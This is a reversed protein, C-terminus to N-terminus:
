RRPFGAGQPIRQPVAGRAPRPRQQRRHRAHPNGPIDAFNRMTVAFNVSSGVPVMVNSGGETEVTLNQFIPKHPNAQSRPKEALPLADSAAAENLYSKIGQEVTTKEGVVGKKVHIATTCLAAIADMSHSVFLITRGQRMVDSMKGLCKAQFAQDGVALVEDVIM